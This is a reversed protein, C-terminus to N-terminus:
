MKQLNSNGVDNNTATCSKTDNGLNTGMLCDNFNESGQLISIAETGSNTTIADFLYLKLFVTLAKINNQNTSIILLSGNKKMKM